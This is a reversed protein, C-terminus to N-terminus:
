RIIPTLERFGFSRWKAPDADASKLTAQKQQLANMTGPLDSTSIRFLTLHPPPVNEGHSTGLQATTRVYPQASVVGPVTAMNRAFDGAFWRGFADGRGAAADGYVFWLYSQAGRGSAGRGKIQPGVEKLSDNYNTGPRILQPGRPAKAANVFYDAYSKTLDKSDGSYIIVYPRPAPSGMAVPATGFRQAYDFGTQGIVEFSHVKNYWENFEPDQGEVSNNFVMMIFNGSEATQALAAGGMLGFAPVAALLARRCVQTTM